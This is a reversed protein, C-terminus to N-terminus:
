EYYILQYAVGAGAPKGAYSPSSYDDEDCADTDIEYFVRLHFEHGTQLEFDKTPNGGGDVWVGNQLDINSLRSWYCHVMTGDFSTINIWGRHDSEPNDPFKVHIYSVNAFMTATTYSEEGKTLNYVELELLADDVSGSEFNITKTGDNTIVIPTTESTGVIETGTNNLVSTTSFPEDSSNHSLEWSAAMVMPASIIMAAGVLICLIKTTKNM